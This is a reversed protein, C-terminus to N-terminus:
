RLPFKYPKFNDCFSLFGPKQNTSFGPKLLIILAIADKFYVKINNKNLLIKVVPPLMLMNEKAVMLKEPSLQDVYQKVQNRIDTVKM